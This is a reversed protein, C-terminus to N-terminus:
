GAQGGLTQAFAALGTLMIQVGVCLLLFASVRMAVKTGESGLYRALTTARSYIQWIAFAVLAAVAVSVVGSVLYDAAKRARNAHLAIGAAISGPGITLPVTLPFIARSMLKPLDDGPAGSDGGPVDPANLMSWGAVAVAFGGGIRLAEMSIGFFNLVPAGIFFIVLLTFFVNTALKKSLTAREAETLSQTRELFVFAMGFPNIIGILGTFGFLIESILRDVPM